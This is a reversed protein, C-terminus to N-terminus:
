RGTAMTRGTTILSRNAVSAIQSLSNRFEYTVYLRGGAILLKVERARRGKLTLM